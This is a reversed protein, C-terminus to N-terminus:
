GPGAACQDSFEHPNARGSLWLGFTASFLGVQACFCSLSSPVLLWFVACEMFVYALFFGASPWPFAFASVHPVPLQIRIWLWIM